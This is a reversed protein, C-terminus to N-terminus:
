GALPTRQGPRVRRVLKIALLLALLLATLPVAQGSLPTLLVLVVAGPVLLKQAM